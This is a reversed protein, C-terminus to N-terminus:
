YITRTVLTISAGGTQNVPSGSTGSRVKIGTIGRWQTPDVAIFCGTTLPVTVTMATGAANQLEYFNTDDPTAQFTLNAATWGNPVIIGVLTKEGLLAEGSLSAGPAITATQFDIYAM